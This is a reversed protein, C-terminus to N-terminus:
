KQKEKYQFAFAERLGEELRRIETDEQTNIQQILGINRFGYIAAFVIVSAYLASVQCIPSYLNESCYRYAGAVTLFVKCGWVIKLIINM